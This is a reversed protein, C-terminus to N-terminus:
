NRVGQQALTKAEWQSSPVGCDKECLLQSILVPALSFILLFHLLISTM